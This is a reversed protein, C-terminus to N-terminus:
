PYTFVVWHHSSSDRYEPISWKLDILKYYLAQDVTLVTYHQGLQSTVYMCRRVVTNLTDMDHAPAQIISMYGVTIVEQNANSLRQNFSSWSARIDKNQRQVIFTMDKARAQIAVNSDDENITYWEMEVTDTFLPASKGEVVNAVDLQQMAEPIALSTKVSPRLHSLHATTEPGRQWAAVQTAHFTNKGDLSSDINDATFHTFIAANLNPPVVAGNDNNMSALTEQALATDIKLIQKYSLINGAKHFLDVLRKSRTVQHLTSGLSIHKPTWKVGNSVAYVIDQGLSM